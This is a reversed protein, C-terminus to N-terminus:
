SVFVFKAYRSRQDLIIDNGNFIIQDINWTVHFPLIGEQICLREMNPNPM